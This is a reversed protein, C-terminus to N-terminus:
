IRANFLFLDVPTWGSASAPNWLQGSRSPVLGARPRTARRHAQALAAPAAPPPPSALACGASPPAPAPLAPPVLGIPAARVAGAAPRPAARDRPLTLAPGGVGPLRCCLAPAAAVQCRACLSAARCGRPCRPWAGALSVRGLSRKGRVEEAEKEKKPRPVWPTESGWSRGRQHTTASSRRSRMDAIAGLSPPPAKEGRM